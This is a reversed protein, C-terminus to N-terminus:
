RVGKKLADVINTKAARNAPFIAGIIGTVLCIITTLVWDFPVNKSLMSEIPFPMKDFFEPPITIGVVNMYYAIPIAIIGGVIAGGLSLIIGEWMFVWRVQNKELGIARITGIEATREFVAITLTNMIIFVALFLPPRIMGTPVVDVRTRSVTAAPERISAAAPVVSNNM